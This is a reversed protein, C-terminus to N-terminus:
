GLLIDRIFMIVRKYWFLCETQFGSIFTLACSLAISTYRVFSHFLSFFVYCFMVHECSKRCFCIMALMHSMKLPFLGSHFTLLVLNNWFLAGKHDDVHSPVLKWIVRTMLVSLSPRMFFRVFLVTLMGWQYFDWKAQPHSAIFDVAVNIADIKDAENDPIEFGFEEELAM